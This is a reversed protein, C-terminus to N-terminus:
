DKIPKVPTQMGVSSQPQSFHIGQLEYSLSQEEQMLFGILDFPQDEEENTKPSITSSSTKIQDAPFAVFNNSFTTM